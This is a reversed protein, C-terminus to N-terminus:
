LNWGFNQEDSEAQNSQDDQYYQHLTFVISRRMTLNEGDERGNM